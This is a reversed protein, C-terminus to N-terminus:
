WAVDAQGEPINVAKRDVWMVVGLHLLKSSELSLIINVDKTATLAVDVPLLHWGGAM